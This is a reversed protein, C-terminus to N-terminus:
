ITFFMGKKRCFYCKGVRFYRLHHCRQASGLEFFTGKRMTKNNVCRYVVSMCAGGGGGGQVFIINATAGIFM